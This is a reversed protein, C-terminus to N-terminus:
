KKSRKVPKHDPNGSAAPDNTSSRKVAKGQKPEAGLVAAKNGVKVGPFRVGPALTPVDPKAKGGSAKEAVEEARSNRPAGKKKKKKPKFTKGTSPDLGSAKLAARQRRGPRNRAEKAKGSTPKGGSTLAPEEGGVVVPPRGKGKGLHRRARREDEDESSSSDDDSGKSKMGKGPKGSTGAALLRLRELREM